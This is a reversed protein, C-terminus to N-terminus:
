PCTGSTNCFITGSIPVLNSSSDNFIAAGSIDGAVNQSSGNFMANGFVRNSNYSSDNFTASSFINGLNYSSDKFVANRSISGSSNNYANESFVAANNVTGSNYSDETFAANGSIINSNSTTDKFIADGGITNGNYCHGIFTANGSVVGFNSAGNFIASGEVPGYPGIGCDGSGTFIADGGVDGNGAVHMYGDTFVANGEIVGENDACESFSVVAGYQATGGWFASISGGCPPPPAILCGSSNVSLIGEAPITINSTLLTAGDRPACGIYANLTLTPAMTDFITNIASNRLIYVYDGDAPARGAPVTHEKNLWWNTATGWHRDAQSGDHYWFMASSGTIIIDITASVSNQATLSDTVHFSFSDLGIYGSNPTYTLNPITGSLTGHSPNNNLSYTVSNGCQSAGTLTIPTATDIAIIQSQVNAFPITSCSTSRNTETTNGRISNNCASILFMLCIINVFHNKM